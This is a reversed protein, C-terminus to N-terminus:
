HAISSFFDNGKDDTIIFAPFNEIEIKRVAEMGLEPFDVVEVSKINEKALIAAPGGISGLYFGGYKACADTVEKSRNGKALMIMSGGHKQFEDVYPDMRGATTPGFSGSPMGEPTKAPGAYYIPHNKFYEPMPQGSDLLEKIKAHAIDRAVILTGKLKLRTKIPYKSLEALIENMPRNLDIEVPAELHPPTEPLFKKPNEELQELFIGDKTIKGKINRDASCSVGMGVPCSAAHRPLRIVRVDHTLYKGGFQAGIASKQCIEQVKKEWELDRFAQGGINGETPLNDYYGASAKKVAALNAEASTGGIVLALHYPPCAATGLDMIKEKVFAELNKENLLSKTKQYLFTKNASGGGKALFLFHYESGKNAYIDIQAPLNSGSNKEEFMTLPVIQSYRLNKSQYTNYIGKSIWEADNVGTYVNEGKKAVCIATGTDQCSPLAGEVAVAANQLLNYAVFRDNDTAEPDDIINKLKQLHTPRLMFSVDALANEALLELGKSDVSLIERDGLKEVKVYESTLKKYPTDDKLIPFPEQYHFEM